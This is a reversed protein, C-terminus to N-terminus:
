AAGGPPLLPRLAEWRAIQCGNDRRLRAWVRRGDLVGTVTAQQPGGYLETCATHPPVVRFPTRGVRRLTACSAVPRPHTGAPPTCRLTLREPTSGPGEPLFVIVLRTPGDSPSASAGAATLAVVLLALAICVWRM